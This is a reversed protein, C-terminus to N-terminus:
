FPISDDRNDRAYAFGPEPEEQVYEIEDPTPADFAVVPESRQASDGRESTNQMFQVTEAVVEYASRRADTQKDRWERYRMQGIVAVGSGRHLFRKCNEGQGGFVSVDFFDARDEWQNTKSNKTRGNCALRFKCVPAGSPMSRMEPDATLNGTLFIRNINLTAM